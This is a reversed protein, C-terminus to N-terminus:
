LRPRLSHGSCDAPIRGTGYLARAPPFSPPNVPPIPKFCRKNACSAATRAARFQLERQRDGRLGLKQSLFTFFASENELELDIELWVLDLPAIAKDLHSPCNIRDKETTVLIEAGHIRAQHAIRQLESPKYTHHDGFAWRFAIELGLSELTNWFNQPNGLGCFAAVRHAGLNPLGAGTRYDRWRRAILDHEFSLLLRTTNVYVLASLM